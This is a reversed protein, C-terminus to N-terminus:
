CSVIATYRDKANTIIKHAAEKLREERILEAAVCIADYQSFRFNHIFTEFIMETTASDEETVAYEFKVVPGRWSERWEIILGCKQLLNCTAAPSFEYYKEENNVGNDPGVEFLIELGATSFWSENIRILKKLDMTTTVKAKM